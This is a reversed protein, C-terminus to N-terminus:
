ASRRATILARWADELANYTADLNYSGEVYFGYDAADSLADPPSLPSKFFNGYLQGLICNRDDAMDLLDLDIDAVWGPRNTDLWAAGAAVLDAPAPATDTM